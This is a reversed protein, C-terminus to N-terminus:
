PSDSRSPKGRSLRMPDNQRIALLGLVGIYGVLSLWGATNSPSLTAAVIVDLVVIAFWLLFFRAIVAPAM